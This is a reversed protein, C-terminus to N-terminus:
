RCNKHNAKNLRTSVIICQQTVWISLAHMPISSVVKNTMGQSFICHIGLTIVVTVIIRVYKVTAPQFTKLILLLLKDEVFTLFFEVEQYTYNAFFMHRTNRKELYLGPIEKIECLRNILSLLKWPWHYNLQRELFPYIQAKAIM